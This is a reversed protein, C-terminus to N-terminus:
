SHITSIINLIPYIFQYQVLFFEYTVRRKDEKNKSKARKHLKRAITATFTMLKRLKDEFVIQWSESLRM